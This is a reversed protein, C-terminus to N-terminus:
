GSKGAPATSEQIPNPAPVTASYTQETELGEFDPGLIRSERVRDGVGNV